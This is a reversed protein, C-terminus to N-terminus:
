KKNASSDADESTGPPLAMVADPPTAENTSSVKEDCLIIVVPMCSTDLRLAMPHAECYTNILWQFDPDTIEHPFVARAM